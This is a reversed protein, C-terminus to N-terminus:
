DSVLASRTDDITSHQTWRAQLVFTFADSHVRSRQNDAKAATDVGTKGFLFTTASATMELTEGGSFLVDLDAGASHM